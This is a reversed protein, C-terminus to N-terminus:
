RSADPNTIIFFGAVAGWITEAMSMEEHHAVALLTDWYTSAASASRQNQLSEPTGVARSPCASLRQVGGLGRFPYFFGATGYTRNTLSQSREGGPLLTPSPVFFPTKPKQVLFLSLSLLNNTSTSNV